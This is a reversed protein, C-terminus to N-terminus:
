EDINAFPHLSTKQHKATNKLNELAHTANTTNLWILEDFQSPLSALFYHSQRETEPRYIVGIARELRPYTLNNIIHKNEKTKKLPLLFNPENTQHLIHEYSEKLSPNVNKIKMKEGWNDAAAVTGTHTGFGINCALDGYTEKCLHGINIEGRSYMQTALANGIHSNHAWVIAKSDNGHYSILSKLTNFMHLDRLNWLDAGGYYTIKYYREADVVTRANQYLSYFLDKDTHLKEREKLLTLLMELIEHECTDLKGSLVLQGYVSPDEIYPSICAYRKKAIKALEPNKTELIQIISHIANELGYLDLGYIHTKLSSNKNHTKLWEIFDLFEHNRWIWQPFRQFPIKFEKKLNGQVYQNVIDMDPWDAESGIINFGKEQILAKTIKQRTLYFESTGHSAEGFLVIKADGIRNLIDKTNLKKIDSFPIYISKIESILKEDSVKKQSIYPIRQPKPIFYNSSIHKKPIEKMENAIFIKDFPAKELWGNKPEGIKFHVNTISKKKFINTILNLYNDNANINYVNKVLLSIVELLYGSDFGILLISDEKKLDLIQLWRALVFMRPITINNNIKINLDEYALNKQELPIFEARDVSKIAVLINSETIGRAELQNKYKKTKMFFLKISSKCVEFNSIIHVNIFHIPKFKVYIKLEKFHIFYLNAYLFGRYFLPKLLCFHTSTRVNCMKCFFCHKKLSNICVYM